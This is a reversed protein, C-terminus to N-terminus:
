LIKNDYSSEKLKYLKHNSKVLKKQKLKFLNQVKQSLQIKKLLLKKLSSPKSKKEEPHDHDHNM